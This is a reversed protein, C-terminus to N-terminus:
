EKDERDKRDEEELAKTARHLLVRLSGKSKSLAQSVEDWSLENIHKLIIVEKYEEKLNNLLKLIREYDHKIETLTQPDQKIDKLDTNELSELSSTTKKSRYYDVITNRAIKYFLAKLNKSKDVKNLIIYDWAKLFVDSAIDQAEERHGVKFYIFRYIDDVYLSHIEIFAQKDKRLSRSSLNNEKFKRLLNSSM